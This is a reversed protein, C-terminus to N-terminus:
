SIVTPEQRIIEGTMADVYLIFDVKPVYIKWAVCIELHDEKEIPVAVLRATSGQLSESTIKINVPGGWTYHTVTRNLLFPIAAGSTLKIEKPIYIDPFWNGTCNYVERGKIRIQITTSLVEITDVMQTTTHLNWGYNTEVADRFSLANIDKVGTFLSNHEIFQKAIEISESTSLTTDVTPKIADIFEDGYGCFGYENLSTQMYINQRAFDM